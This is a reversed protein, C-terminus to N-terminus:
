MRHSTLSAKPTTTAVVFSIAFGGQVSHIDECENMLMQFNGVYILMFGAICSIRLLQDCLMQGTVVLTWWHLKVSVGRITIWNQREIWGSPCETTTITTTTTTTITTTLLLYYYYTTTTTTTTPWRPLGKIKGWGCYDFLIHSHISYQCYSSKTLSKTTKQSPISNFKKQSYVWENRIDRYELVKCIYILICFNNIVSFYNFPATMPTNTKWPLFSFLSEFMEQEFYYM